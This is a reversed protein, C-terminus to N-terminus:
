AHQVQRGFQRATDGVAQAARQAGLGDVLRVAGATGMAAATALVGAWRSPAPWTAEVHAVGSEHLRRAKHGQEDYPRDQPIVVAPRRAAAVEMVANHGAHTVVVDAARLWPLPDEIWTADPGGAGLTVWRWGPTAAVADAVPWCGTGGIGDLVVVIREAPNVGLASRAAAMPDPVDPVDPAGPTGRGRRSLAEDFRSFGGAYVTKDRMWDPVWPDELWSPYPALLLSADAYCTLHARDDRRGHQRVVVTPVSLLRMLAAVEVSVDVVVLDPDTAEVWAAMATMRQRVGPVGLPAYHLGAPAAATACAASRPPDVDLPLAVADAAPHSSFLTVEEEMHAITCRARTLHGLGHHHAYWGIM